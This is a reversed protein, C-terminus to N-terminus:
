MGPCHTSLAILAPEGLYRFLAFETTYDSTLSDTAIAAFVKNM